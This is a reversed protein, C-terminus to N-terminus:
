RRLGNASGKGCVVDSGHRCDAVRALLLCSRSQRRANYIFISLKRWDRRGCFVVPQEGDDGSKCALFVLVRAVVWVNSSVDDNGFQV